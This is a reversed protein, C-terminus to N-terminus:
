GRFSTRRSYHPEGRSRNRSLYGPYTVGSDAIATTGAPNGGIDGGPIDGFRLYMGDWNTDGIFGNAVYDLPTTFNNILTGAQASPVLTALWVGASIGALTRITKM